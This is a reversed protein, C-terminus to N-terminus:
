RKFPSQSRLRALRHEHVGSMAPSVSPGAMGPLLAWVVERIPNTLYEVAYGDTRVTVVDRGNQALWRVVSRAVAGSYGYRDLRNALDGIQEIRAPREKRPDDTINIVGSKSTAEIPLEYFWQLCVAEVSASPPPPPRPPRRIPSMAGPPLPPRYPYFTEHRNRYAHIM